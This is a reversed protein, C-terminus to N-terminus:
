QEPMQCLVKAAGLLMAAHMDHGCAHMMGPIESAYPLGTNEQVPLADIDARLAVCKGPGKKGHILAVVATPVPSEVHDVGYQVLKERILASTKVENRGIEPFRHIIRRNERMEEACNEAVSQVCCM